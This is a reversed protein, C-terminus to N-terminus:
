LPHSTHWDTAQQYAYALKLLTAESCHPGILQFGVPRRDSTFGCPLTVAPNGAANAIATFRMLGEVDQEIMSDAETLTPTGQRIVPMLIADVDAFLRNLQGRFRGREILGKALRTSEAALGREIGKRLWPGYHVVQSPFSQEHAVALEALQLDVIHRYLPEHDPLVIERLEAGLSWLVDASAETLKLVEPDLGAASRSRDVGIKLGRACFIDDLGDTYNPVPDPLSTPDCPDDGAIVHLMAAADAASRTIPGITDWSAALDFIGHRSTRGWTPKIGTLGHCASPFRISGGTDSGLSAYCLGAATAVGSGSSSVGAWLSANWPNIPHPMQPHHCFTAAETMSLKGLLVAGADNLRQVVTANFNPRFDRHITMGATTPTGKTFCLDKVAIPVGHLAGRYRGRVIEEEAQQAQTRALDASVTIYANLAPNLKEIRALMLETVEVPSVRRCKLDTALETFSIYHLDAGPM